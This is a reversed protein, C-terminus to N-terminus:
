EDTEEPGKAWAREREERRRKRAEACIKDLEAKLPENDCIIQDALPEGLRYKLEM